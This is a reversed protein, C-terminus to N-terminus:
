SVPLKWIREELKIAPNKRFNWISLVDVTMRSLFTVHSYILSETASVTDTCILHNFNEVVRDEPFGKGRTTNGNCKNGSFSALADFFANKQMELVQLYRILSVRPIDQLLESVHDKVPHPLSM